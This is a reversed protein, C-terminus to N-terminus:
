KESWRAFDVNYALLAGGKRSLPLTQTNPAGCEQLVMVLMVGLPHGIHITLRAIAIATVLSSRPVQLGQRLSDCYTGCVLDLM